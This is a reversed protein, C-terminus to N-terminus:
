TKKEAAEQPLFALMMDRMEMYEKSLPQGLIFRLQELALALIEDILFLDTLEFGSGPHPARVFIRDLRSISPHRLTGGSQRLYLFEPYMLCKMRASVIPGFAGLDEATSVSFIPALLYTPRLAKAALKKQAENAITEPQVGQCRGLVLCPRIKARSIVLEQTRDLNLAKIPLRDDKGRFDGKEQERIRLVVETHTVSDSRQVDGIKPRADTELVPCFVIQGAEPNGSSKRKEDYFRGYLTGIDEFGDSGTM